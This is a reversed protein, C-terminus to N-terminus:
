VQRGVQRILSDGLPAFEEPAGLPSGAEDVVGPEGRAVLTQHAAVVCAGEWFIERLRPTLPTPGLAAPELPIRELTNHETGVTMVIGAARLAEAYREVVELKNRRPILQGCYIGRARLEAALAEPAAEFEPIPNGGDALIPYCPIGGLGIIATRAEDPAIFREEAYAPKGAKLLCSRLDNQVATADRPKTLAIGAARDVLETPDEGGAAFLAEQLAQVLHREQLAVYEVPVGAREAITRAIGEVSLEIEVGREALTAVLREVMTRCRVEDRARIGALVARAAEPPAVIRATGIGIYYFRGPNSPDNVRVGRECLEPDFTIIELGFCPFIGKELCLRGFGEYIRHDYYNSACVLALGQEHALAVADEATRFASFNPPLHLHDNHPLPPGLQGPADLSLGEFLPALLSPESM